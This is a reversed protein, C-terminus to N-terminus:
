RISKSTKDDESIGMNRIKEFFDLVRDFTRDAEMTVNSTNGSVGLRMKKWYLVLAGEANRIMFRFYAGRENLNHQNEKTHAGTTSHMQSKEETQAGGRELLLANVIGGDERM